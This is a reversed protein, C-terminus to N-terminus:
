WSKVPIQVPYEDEESPDWMNSFGKAVFYGYEAYVAYTDANEILAENGPNPGCDWALEAVDM